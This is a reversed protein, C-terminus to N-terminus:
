ICCIAFLKSNFTVTLNATCMETNGNSHTINNTATCTLVYFKNDEVKFESDSRIIGGTLNTWEFMPTPNGEATCTLVTGIPVM